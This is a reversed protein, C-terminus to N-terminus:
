YGSGVDPQPDEDDLPTDESSALLEVSEEQDGQSGAGAPPAAQPIHGRSLCVQIGKKGRKCIRCPMLQSINLNKAPSSDDGANDDDENDDDQRQEQQSSRASNMSYLSDVGM